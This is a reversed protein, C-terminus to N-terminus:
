DYEPGWFPNSATIEFRSVGRKPMFMEICNGPGDTFMWPHSLFTDITYSQGPDLDAYSVPMGEFNIWMVSRSSDTKNVFTVTIPDNSSQSKAREYLNCTKNKASLKIKSNSAGANGGGVGVCEGDIYKQGAGDCGIEVHSKGPNELRELMDELVAVRDEYKTVLCGTDNGCRNRERLWARQETRLARFDSRSLKRRLERYVENLTGDRRTLDRDRCIEREAAKKAKSCYNERTTSKDQDSADSANLTWAVAILAALVLFFRFM